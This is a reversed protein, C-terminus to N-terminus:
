AIQLKVALDHMEAYAISHCGAYLIDHLYARIEWGKSYGRSNASEGAEFSSQNEHWRCIIKWLRKCETVTLHIGKSTEVLDTAPNYRMLVNGGRFLEPVDGYWWSVNTICDHYLERYAAWDKSEIAEKVRERDEERRISQLQRELQLRAEKEAKTRMRKARMEARQEPTYARHKEMRTRAGKTRKVYAEYTGKGNVLDILDKLEMDAVIAKIVRRALKKDTDRKRTYGYYDQFYDTSWAEIKRSLYKKWTTCGTVEIFRKMDEYEQGVKSNMELLLSTSNKYERLEELIGYVRRDLWPLAYDRNFEANWRWFGGWRYEFGRVRPNHTFVQADTPIASRMHSQHKCTTNSCRGDNILYIRRGNSLDVIDGIVTSYSYLKTGEFTMNDRSGGLRAKLQHAWNHAVDNANAM